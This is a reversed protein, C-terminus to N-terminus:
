KLIEKFPLYNGRPNHQRHSNGDDLIAFVIRSFKNRYEEQDLVEKFLRAIEEPPNGYAGCGFAGLVIADNEWYLGLNLMMKIKGKMIEADRQILKGDVLTPNKIAAITIFDMVYTKDLFSYNKDESNRFVSISPSYIAGYELPLPYQKEEVPLGNEKALYESFRYLSEYLNSRRFINEEQAGSGREVGGGPRKFSANNIVVPSFGMDILSQAAYLCDMNVVTLKTDFKPLEEFVINSTIDKDYYTASDIAVGNFKSPIEIKEGDPNIFFGKSACGVTEWFVKIRDQREM